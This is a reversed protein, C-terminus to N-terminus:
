HRRISRSKAGRVRLFRFGSRARSPVKQRRSIPEESRTQRPVATDFNSRLEPTTNSYVAAARVDDATRNTSVAAVISASTDSLENADAVADNDISDEDDFTTTANNDFGRVVPTQPSSHRHSISVAPLTATHSLVRKVQSTAVPTASTERGIHGTKVADAYTRPSSTSM